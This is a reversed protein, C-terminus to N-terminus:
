LMFDLGGHHKKIRKYNRKLGFIFYGKLRSGKVEQKWQFLGFLGVLRQSYVGHDKVKFYCGLVMISICKQQVLVIVSSKSLMSLIHNPLGWNVMIVIYWLQTRKDNSIWYLNEIRGFECTYMSKWEKRNWSSCFEVTLYASTVVSVLIAM